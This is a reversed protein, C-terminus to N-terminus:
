GRMCTRCGAAWKASLCSDVWRVEDAAAKADPGPDTGTDFHEWPGPHRSSRQGFPIWTCYLCPQVRRTVKVNCSPYGGTPGLHWKALMGLSHYRRTGVARHQGPVLFAGQSIAFADPGVVLRQGARQRGYAVCFNLSSQHQAIPIGRQHCSGKEEKGRKADDSDAKRCVQLM